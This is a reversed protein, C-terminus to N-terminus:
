DVKRDETMFKKESKEDRDRRFIYTILTIVVSLVGGTLVGAIMAAVLNVHITYGAQSELLLSQSYEIRDYWRLQEDQLTEDKTVRVESITVELTSDYAELKEKVYDAFASCEEETAHRLVLAANGEEDEQWTLLEYLFEKSRETSIEDWLEKSAAYAKLQEKNSIQNLFLTSEYIQTPNMQMLVSNDMYSELWKSEQEYYLYEESHPVSIEEGTLKTMGAFLATCALLLVLVMKWQKIYYKTFDELSITLKESTM